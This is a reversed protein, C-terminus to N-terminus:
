GFKAPYFHRSEIEFTQKRVDNTANMDAGRWMLYEIVAIDRRDVAASLASGGDQNIMGSASIIIDFSHSPLAQM